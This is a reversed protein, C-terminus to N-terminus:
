NAEVPEDFASRLLDKLSPEEDSPVFEPLTSSEEHEIESSVEMLSKVAAIQTDNLDILVSLLDENLERGLTSQIEKERQARAKMDEIKQKYARLDELEKTIEEPIVVTSEETEESTEELSEEEEVSELTDELTEEDELVEEVTTEEELTEESIEKKTMDEEDQSAISKIKTRGEYAPNVVLTTATLIPDKFWRVGADDEEYDSYAIEWSLHALDESVLDEIM